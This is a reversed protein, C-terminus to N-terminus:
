LCLSGRESSMFFVWSGQITPIGFLGLGSSLFQNLDEGYICVPV